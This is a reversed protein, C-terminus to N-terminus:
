DCCDDDVIAKCNRFYETPDGACLQGERASCDRSESRVVSEGCACECTGCERACGGSGGAGTASAGGGSGSAAAASAAEPDKEVDSGCAGALPAFLLPALCLGRRGLTGRVAFVFSRRAM